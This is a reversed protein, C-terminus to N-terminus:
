FKVCPFELHVFDQTPRVLRHRLKHVWLITGAVHPFGRDIPLGIFGVRSFGEMGDDFIFKCIDVDESFFKVINDLMPEVQVRILPLMLLSGCIQVLKLIQDLNFCEEFAQVFQVALKRELVDTKRQFKKKEKEFFKLEPDPDLADFTINTWDQYVKNFEDYIEQICRSIGRGKLGGIEVKELKLFENAIAFVGRIANLRKLYLDFREFIDRPRFSWFVVNTGEVV